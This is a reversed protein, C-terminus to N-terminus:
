RFETARRKLNKLSASLRIEDQSGSATARLALELQGRARELEDLAEFYRALSEHSSAEDGLQQQISALQRWALPDPNINTRIYRTVANQADTLQRQLVLSDSQKEVISYREPYLDALEALQTDYGDKTSTKSKASVDAQLLAIFPNTSAISDLSEM